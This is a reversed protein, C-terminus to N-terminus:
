LRRVRWLLRAARRDGRPRGACVQRADHRRRRSRRRPRRNRAWGRAPLVGGALSSRARARRAHHRRRFARSEQRSWDSARRAGSIYARVRAPVHARSDARPHHWVAGEVRRRDPPHGFPVHRLTLGRCRRLRTAADDLAARLHLRRPARATEDGGVRAGAESDRGAGDSGCACLLPRRVARRDFRVDRCLDAHSTQTGWTCLGSRSGPNSSCARDLTGCTPPPRPRSPSRPAQTAANRTEHTDEGEEACETCAEPVTRLQKHRLSYLVRLISAAAAVGLIRTVVPGPAVADLGM